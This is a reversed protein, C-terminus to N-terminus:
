NGPQISRAVEAAIRRLEPDSDSSRVEVLVRQNGVQRQETAAKDANVDVTSLAAREAGQAAVAAPVPPRPGIVYGFEAGRDDRAARIPGFLPSAPPSDAATEAASVTLSRTGKPQRFTFVTVDRYDAPLDIWVPGAQRLAGGVAGATLTRRVPTAEAPRAAEILRQFEEAAVTSDPPSDLAIHAAVGNRFLIFASQETAINGLRPAPLTAAVTVYVAGDSRTQPESVRADRAGVLDALQTAYRRAAHSLDERTGLTVAHRVILRRKGDAVYTYESVDRFGVPPEFTFM